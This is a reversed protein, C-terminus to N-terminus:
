DKIARMDGDNRICKLEFDRDEAILVFRNKEQIAHEFKNKLSEYEIAFEKKAIELQKSKIELDLKLSEHKQKYETEFENIAGRIIQDNQALIQEQSYLIIKWLYDLNQAIIAHEDSVLNSDSKNSTADKTNLLLSIMSKIVDGYKLYDAKITDITLKLKQNKIIGNLEKELSEKM